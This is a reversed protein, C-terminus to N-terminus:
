EAEVFEICAELRPDGDVVIKCGDTGHKECHKALERMGSVFDEGFVVKERVQGIILVVLAGIGFWIINQIM